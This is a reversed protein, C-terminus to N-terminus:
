KIEQLRERFQGEIIISKATWFEICSAKFFTFIRIWLGFTKLTNFRDPIMVIASSDAM